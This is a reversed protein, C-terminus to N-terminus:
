TPLITDRFIINKLMIYLGILVMSIGHLLIFQNLKETIPASEPADIKGLETIIWGTGSWILILAIMAYVMM